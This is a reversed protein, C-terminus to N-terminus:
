LSPSYNNAGVRKKKFEMLKERIDEKRNKNDLVREKRQVNFEKLMLKFDKIRLEKGKGLLSMLRQTLDKQEKQFDKLKFSIENKREEQRTLIKKMRGQFEIVRQVEGKLLFEKVSALNGRLNHTMGKQESIYTKLLDRVEIERKEQSSLIDLMMIDFDKKRLSSNEALAERLQVFREKEDKTDLFSSYFGEMLQSAAGFIEGIDQIKEEYSSVTEEFIDKM